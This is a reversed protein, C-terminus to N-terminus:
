SVPRGSTGAGAGPGPTMPVQVADPYKHIAGTGWDIGLGILGGILLNGLSWPEFGSKATAVLTPVTDTSRPLPAPPNPALVSRLASDFGCHSAIASKFASEAESMATVLTLASETDTNRPRTRVRVATEGLGFGTTRPEETVKVAETDTGDGPEPTGVPETRNKSPVVSSPVDGTLPPTAM